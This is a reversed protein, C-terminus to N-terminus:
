FTPTLTYPTAATATDYLPDVVIRAGGSPFGSVPVNLLTAGAPATALHVISADFTAIVLAARVQPAPISLSLGTPTTATDFIQANADSAIAGTQVGDIMPPAPLALDDITVYYDGPGPAAAAPGGTSYQFLTRSDAIALLYYGRRPLYIQRATTSSSATLGFRQWSPIPAAEGPAGRALFGGVVGVGAVTVHLLAPDGVYVQYTDVDPDLQMDHNVDAFPQLRGHIVFPPSGEGPLAVIGAPAISAEIVGLGNPEPGEELDIALNGHPDACRDAILVTGDPCVDPAVVCTHTVPDLRTGVGCPSGGDPLDAVCVGREDAQTGPGCARSNDGCAAAVALLALILVLAAIRQRARL